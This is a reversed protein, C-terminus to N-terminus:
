PSVSASISTNREVKFRVGLFQRSVGLRDAIEEVIFEPNERFIALARCVLRDETTRIISTRRHLIGEPQLQISPPVVGTALYRDM